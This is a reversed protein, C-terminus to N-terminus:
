KLLGTKAQIWNWPTARAFHLMYEQAMKPILLIVLWIILRKITLAYKPFWKNRAAWFLFWHEFLNPFVLLLWRVQTIEFMIVGIVRYIFLTISTWKAMAEWKLSKILAFLLYYSDLAKDLASYNAFDGMKFVDILVVDIIDFFASLVTGGFCIKIFSQCAM